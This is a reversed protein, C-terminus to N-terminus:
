VVVSALKDPVYNLVYFRKDRVLAFLLRMLKCAVAVLAVTRAKGLSVLREYFARLCGNSRVVGVAALYLGERLVSRGRKTIRRKGCHQGSSLEYLNLGALKIIERASSYYRLGGTEGLIVAVTVLGIGKVSRLYVTEELNSVLGEMLVAIGELEETLQLYRSLSQFLMVKLGEMGERIGVSSRALDYLKALKALRLKGRSIKHLTRAIEEYSFSLLLDPTYVHSLLYYSSQTKLNRFVRTFEPFLVDIVRHIINLQATRDSILRKRLLVLYRLDAYRGQPMICHMFKGQNVLDAIIWADKKDTKGPNNDYLDKARHTHLPNVQVVEVSKKQLWYVLTEWYHGTSEVGILIQSFNDEEYWKDLWWWFNNFGAADSSFKFAKTFSGDRRRVVAVHFVKGIDVGVVMVNNNVYRGKKNITIRNM